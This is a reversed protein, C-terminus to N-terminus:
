RGKSVGLARMKILETQDVDGPDEMLWEDFQRRVAAINPVEVKAGQAQAMVAAQYNAATIRDLEEVQLTYSLACLHAM